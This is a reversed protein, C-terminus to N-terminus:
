SLRAGPSILFGAAMMSEQPKVYLWIIPIIPGIWWPFTGRNKEDGPTRLVPKNGAGPPGSQYYAQGVLDGLLNGMRTTTQKDTASSSAPPGQKCAASLGSTGAPALSSFSQPSPSNVSPGAYPGSAQM